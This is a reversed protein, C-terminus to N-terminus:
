STAGLHKTARDARAGVEVGSSADDAEDEDKDSM